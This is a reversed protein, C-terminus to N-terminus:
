HVLGSNRVILATTNDVRWIKLIEKWDRNSIMGLPVKLDQHAGDFEVRVRAEGTVASDGIFVAIKAQRFVMEALM